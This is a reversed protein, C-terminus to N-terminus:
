RKNFQDFTAAANARPEILELRFRDAFQLIRYHLTDPHGVLNLEGVGRNLQDIRNKIPRSFVEIALGGTSPVEIRTRRRAIVLGVDTM